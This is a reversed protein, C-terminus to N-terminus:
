GKSLRERVLFQRQGSLTDKLSKKLLHSFIQLKRCIQEYECFFDQVSFEKHLAKRTLVYNSRYTVLHSLTLLERLNKCFM